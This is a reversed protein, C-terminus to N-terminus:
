QSVSSATDSDSFELGGLVGGVEMLKLAADHDFYKVEYNPQVVALLDFKGVNRTLARYMKSPVSCTESIYKVEVRFTIGGKIAILDCIATPCVAKFVEYGRILMDATAVVEAIAGARYSKDGASPMANMRTWDIVKGKMSLSKGTNAAILVVLRERAQEMTIEEVRGLVKEPRRCKGGKGYSYWRGVYSGKRIFISGNGEGRSRM